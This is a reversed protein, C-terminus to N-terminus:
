VLYGVIGHVSKSGSSLPSPHTLEVILSDVLNHTLDERMNPVALRSMTRGRDRRSRGDGRRGHPHRARAAHEIVDIRRHVGSSSSEILVVHAGECVAILCTLCQAGNAPGKAFLHRGPSDLLGGVASDFVLNLLIAQGDFLCWPRVIEHRASPRAVITQGDELSRGPAHDTRDSRHGVDGLRDDTVGDPHEGGTVRHNEIDVGEGLLGAGPQDAQHVLRENTGAQGITQETPDMLRRDLASLGQHLVRTDTEEHHRAARRHHIRGHSRALADHSGPRSIGGNDDVFSGIEIARSSTDDLASRQVVVDDAEVFLHDDGDIGDGVLEGLAEFPVARELEIATLHVAECVSRDGLSSWRPIAHSLVGPDDDLVDTEASVRTEPQGVTLDFLLVGPHLVLLEHGDDREHSGCIHIVGDLHGVSHFVIEEMSSDHVGGVDLVQMAHRSPAIARDEDLVRDSDGPDTETTLAVRRERDGAGRTM